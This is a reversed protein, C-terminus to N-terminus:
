PGVRKNISITTGLTPDRKAEWTMDAIIDTNQGGAVRKGDTYKICPVHVVYDGNSNYMPVVLSSSTFALYRGMMLADSFYRKLTGSVMVAGLGLSQPGLQGAVTRARLNNNAALTFETIDAALYNELVGKVCDVAAMVANTNAATITSSGTASASAETKGMLTFSGTIIGSAPVTLSLQDMACGNYVAFTSAVDNFCKEISCTSLTTGNTIQALVEYHASTITESVLTEAIALVTTSTRATILHFGNNAANTAGTVYLFKGAIASADWTGSGLTFTNPGTAAALNAAATSACGAVWTESTMLTWALFDDFSGYTLEFDIAGSVKADTRIVDAIQCDSRIETSKASTTAQELSEKTFRLAAYAVSTPVTGYTTEKVYSLSVRNSDSM